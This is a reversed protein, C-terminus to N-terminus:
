LQNTSFSFEYAWFISFYMSLYNNDCFVHNMAMIITAHNKSEYIFQYIDCKVFRMHKIIYKHLYRNYLGCVFVWMQRLKVIGNYVFFLWIQQQSVFTGVTEMLFNSIIWLFIVRKKSRYSCIDVSNYNSHQLMSANRIYKHFFGLIFM